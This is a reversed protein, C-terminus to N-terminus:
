SFLGTASLVFPVVYKKENEQLGPSIFKWLQHFIVPLSAVLAAVFAVKM